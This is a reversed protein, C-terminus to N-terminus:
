EVPQYPQRKVFDITKPPMYTIGGFVIRFRTRWDRNHRWEYVLRAVGGFVVRLPNMHLQPSGTLGIAPRALPPEVYTGCVRDWLLFMGGGLNAMQHEKAASHHVYHYAGHGGCLATLFRLLPNRRCLDYHRSSHNFIEFCYAFLTLLGVAGVMPETTFLKTLTATTVARPVWVLFSFGFALPAGVPHLWDPMHHPAHCVHWLLRSVHGLYHIFYDTFSYLTWGLLLAWPLAPLEILTPVYRQILTELGRVSGAFADNGGLGGALLAVLLGILVHIGAAPAYVLFNRSFRHWAQADVSWLYGHLAVSLRMGFTVAVMAAFFYPLNPSINAPGPASQLQALEPLTLFEPSPSLLLLELPLYVLMVGLLVWSLHRQRAAREPTVDFDWLRQLMARM